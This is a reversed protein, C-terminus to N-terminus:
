RANNKKFILILIFTIVAILAISGGPRLDLYYSVYLGMVMFIISFVIGYILTTKFSKAIQMACLVPIVLLSSVILVGITKSAIAIAIATLITFIFNIKNVKVGRRKASNEDLIIYFLSNYYYIFVSLVFVVLAIILYLEYDSVAVISGFLYSSFAVGSKVKSSLIGALGVGLSMIIVLANEKFRPIYKQMIEIGLAAIICAIISGIVPDFGLVLGMAVGVLSTHSLADGVLSLRKFVVVIGICPLVIALLIGVLFARRIFEFEFLEM